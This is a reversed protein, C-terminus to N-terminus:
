AMLRATTRSSLVKVDRHLIHSDHLLKLGQVVDIFVKWLEHEPMHTGLKKHSDLKRLLDGGGAYEMVICLCAASDDMFAEKYAIINPHRLSALIRVENVANGKEKASLAGM